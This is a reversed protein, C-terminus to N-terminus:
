SAILARILATAIGGSNCEPHFQTLLFMKPYNKHEVAEIVGDPSIATIKLQDSINEKFCGQHHLSLEKINDLDINSDNKKYIKALLSDEYVKITHTGKFINNKKGDLILEFNDSYDKLDKKLFSKFDDHHYNGKEEKYIRKDDPLNQVLSGGMTVNILQMGACIGLIPMNQKKLVYELMRIETQSRVNLIDNPLRKKTESHIYEGNYLDPHIDDKNGPFIVANCDSLINDVVNLHDSLITNKNLYIPIIVPTAGCIKILRIILKYCFENKNDIIGIKFQDKM